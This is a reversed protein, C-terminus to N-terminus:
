NYMVFENNSKKDFLVKIVHATLYGKLQAQENQVAPAIEKGSADFARKVIEDTLELVLAIFNTPYSKKGSVNVNHSRKELVKGTVIYGNGKKFTEETWDGPWNTSSGATIKVDQHIM